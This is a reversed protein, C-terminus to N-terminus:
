AIRVGERRVNRLFPSGGQEVEQLDAPFASIVIGHDASVRIAVDCIRDHEAWFDDCSDLVVLVDVDSGEVADSRARSGYLVIHDLRAGYLKRIEDVFRALATRWSPRPPSALEAAQKRSKLQPQLGVDPPLLLQEEKHEYVQSSEGDSANKARKRKTGKKAM